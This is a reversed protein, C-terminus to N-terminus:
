KNNINEQIKDLFEKVFNKYNYKSTIEEKTTKVFTDVSQIKQCLDDSDGLKFFEVDFDSYIEKFVEIDSIIPKTGLYLAELPPLGFGEYHSPLVLMQASAVEYFLEEDSIRGTFEVGEYEIDSTNLGVSFNDKNGIIKLKYLNNPLKKYADILTKLGKHPKVNGVFVIHNNKEINTKNFSLIESSLGNYNIYCKDALKKYYHKCRNVTFGSVCAIKKSKKMCRKLLISKIKKDIYNKTTVKVDLFALDHMITYAPIKVNFPILFNPIIIIDCLKNVERNIGLIGKKSYPNNNDELINAGLYKELKEKKGVLYYENESYDLNNLIGECVRGIGSMGIYRCDIAIKM